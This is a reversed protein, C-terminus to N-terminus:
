LKKHCALLELTELSVKSIDLVRARQGPLTISCTKVKLKSWALSCNGSDLIRPPDCIRKAHEPRPEGSRNEKESEHQVAVPLMRPRLLLFSIAVDSCFVHAWM